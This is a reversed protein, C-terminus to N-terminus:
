RFDNPVEMKETKAIIATEEGCLCFFLDLLM